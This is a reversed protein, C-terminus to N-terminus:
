NITAGILQTSSSSDQHLILGDAAAPWSGDPNPQWLITRGSGYNSWTVINPTGSAETLFFRGHEVNPSTFPELAPLDHVQGWNMVTSDSKATAVNMAEEGAAGQVRMGAIMIGSSTKIIQPRYLPNTFEPSNADCSGSVLDWLGTKQYNSFTGGNYTVTAYYVKCSTGVASALGKGVLAFHLKTGGSQLEESIMSVQAVKLALSGSIDQTAINSESSDLLGAKAIYLRFERVHPPNMGFDVAPHVYAVYANVSDRAMAVSRFADITTGSWSTDEVYGIKTPPLALASRFVEIRQTTNNDAFILHTATVLGSSLELSVPSSDGYTQWNNGFVPLEILKPVATILDNLKWTRLGGAQPAIAYTIFAGDSAPVVSIRQGAISKTGAYADVDGRDSLLKSDLNYTVHKVSKGSGADKNLILHVLRATGGSAPPPGEYTYLVPSSVLINGFDVELTVPQPGAQAASPSQACKATNAGATTKACLRNGFRIGFQANDISSSLQLAVATGGVTPGTAPSLSLISPIPQGVSFEENKNLDFLNLFVRVPVASGIACKASLLNRDAACLVKKSVGNNRVEASFTTRDAQLSNDFGDPDAFVGPKTRVRVRMTLIRDPKNGWTAAIAVNDRTVLNTGTISRPATADNQQASDDAAAEDHTTRLTADGPSCGVGLVAALVGSAVYRYAYVTPM